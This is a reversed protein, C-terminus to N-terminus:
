LQEDHTVNYISYVYPFNAGLFIPLTAFTPLATVLNLKWTSLPILSTGQSFLARKSLILMWDIKYLVDRYQEGEFYLIIFMSLKSTAM